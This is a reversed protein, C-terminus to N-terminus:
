DASISPGEPRSPPTYSNKGGYMGDVLWELDERSFRCLKARPSTAFGAQCANMLASLSRGKYANWSAVFKMDDLITRLYNESFEHFRAPNKPESFIALRQQTQRFYQDQAVSMRYGEFILGGMLKKNAM